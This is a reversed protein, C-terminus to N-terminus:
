SSASRIVVVLEEWEEPTLHITLNGLELHYIYGDEEMSRWVGFGLDESEALFEPEMDNNNNNGM